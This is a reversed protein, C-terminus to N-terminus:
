SWHYLGGATPFASAVQAMTVACCLALLCGLPWGIGIAGGGGSSFALQFSTLGGALICIISLSLAFSSFASMRRALEQAYGMAQLTGVDDDAAPSQSPSSAPLPTDVTARM